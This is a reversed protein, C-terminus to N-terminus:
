ESIRRDFKLELFSVFIHTIEESYLYLMPGPIFKDRTEVQPSIIIFILVFDPVERSDFGNDETHGVLM